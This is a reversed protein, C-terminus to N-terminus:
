LQKRMTESDWATLSKLMYRYLDHVTLKGVPLPLYFYQAEAELNKVTERNIRVRKGTNKDYYEYHNRRPLIAVTQGDTTRGLYPGIADRYWEGELFVTRCSINLTEIVYDVPNVGEPIEAKRHYFALIESIADTTQARDSQAARLGANGTVASALDRYAADLMADDLQARQISKENINM